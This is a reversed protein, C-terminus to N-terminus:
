CDSATLTSNRSSWMFPTAAGPDLVFDIVGGFIGALEMIMADSLGADTGALFLSSDITM